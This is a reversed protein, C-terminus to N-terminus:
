RTVSKKRLNSRRENTGLPKQRFVSYLWRRMYRRNPWFSVGPRTTAVDAAIADIADAEDIFGFGLVPSFIELQFL